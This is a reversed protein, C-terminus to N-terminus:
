RINVKKMEDLQGEYKENITTVKESEYLVQRTLYEERAKEVRVHVPMDPVMYAVMSRLAFM